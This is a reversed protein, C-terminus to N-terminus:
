DILVGRISKWEGQESAVVTQQRDDTLTSSVGEMGFVSRIMVGNGSVVLWVSSISKFSSESRPMDVVPRSGFELDKTGEFDWIVARRIM